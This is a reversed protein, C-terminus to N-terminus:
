LFGFLSVLVSKRWVCVFDDIEEEVLGVEFVVGDCVLVVVGGEVGGDM